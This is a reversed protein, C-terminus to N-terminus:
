KKGKIQTNSIVKDQSVYQLIFRLKEQCTLHGTALLYLITGKTKPIIEDKINLEKM